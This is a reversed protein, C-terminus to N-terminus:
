TGVGRRVAGEELVEAEEVAKAMGGAGRGVEPWLGAAHFLSPSAM